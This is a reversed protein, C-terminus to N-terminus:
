RAPTHQSAACLCRMAGCTSDAQCPLRIGAWTAVPSAATPWSVALATVRKRTLRGSALHTILTTPRQLGKTAFTTNILDLAMCCCSQLVLDCHGSLLARHRGESSEIVPLDRHCGRKPHLFRLPPFGLSSSERPLTLSQHTCKLMVTHPESM